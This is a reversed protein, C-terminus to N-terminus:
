SIDFPQLKGPRSQSIQVADAALPRPSCALSAVPSPRPPPLRRRRSCAEAADPQRPNTHTHTHTPPTDVSKPSFKIIIKNYKPRDTKKRNKVGLVLCRVSILETGFDRVSCRVSRVEDIKKIKQNSKQVGRHIHRICWICWFISIM